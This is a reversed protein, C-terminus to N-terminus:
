AKNDNAKRNHGSTMSDNDVRNLDSNGPARRAGRKNTNNPPSINPVASERSYTSDSERDDWAGSPV